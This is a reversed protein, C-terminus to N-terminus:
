RNPSAQTPPTLSGFARRAMPRDSWLTTLLAVASLLLGTDLLVGLRLVGTLGYFLAAIGFMWAPATGLRGMLALGVLVYLTACPVVGFPAAYLHISPPLESLFHPYVWGVAVSAVGIAEYTWGRPSVRDPSARLSSFGLGAALVGFAVANFVLGTALAVGAVSVCPLAALQIARRTGPQWGGALAILLGLLVLHWAIALPMADHAASELLRLIEQPTPM